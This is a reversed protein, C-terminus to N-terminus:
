GRRSQLVKATRSQTDRVTSPTDFRIAAKQVEPLLPLFLPPVPLRKGSDGDEAGAARGKGDRPIDPGDSRLPAMRQSLWGATEDCIFDEEM